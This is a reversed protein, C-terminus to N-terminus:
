YEFFRKTNNIILVLSLMIPVEVLVGVVTALAAGSHIGFLGISVAVALEFFNSTGILASPASIKHPVKWLCSWCYAIIFIGYTQIILPIAILLIIFPKNILLEAQLAFLIVVTVLLGVASYPEIHILFNNLNMNKNEELIKRTIYGGILPIIIYLAVSIILTKWPVIINTVGLLLSAIPAFAFVMIIDNISVQALTYVADGKVLKSWVFVMATCPAVGLLIMGAIYQRADEPNVLDVFILEFFLIGLLAMSFPKILWNITLTIIFGKLNKHINKIKSFDINIMMPYIMVWILVAIVVNVGAYQLQSILEFISSFNKGLLIGTVISLFIWISLYKNFLNLSNNEKLLM